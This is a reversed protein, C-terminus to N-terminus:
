KKRMQAETNKYILDLWVNSHLNINEQFIYYHYGCLEVSQKISKLEVNCHNVQVLIKVNAKTSWTINFFRKTVIMNVFITLQSFNGSTIKSVSNNTRKQQVTTWVYVSQLVFTYSLLFLITHTVAKEYRLQTWLDSMIQTLWIVDLFFGSKSKSPEEPKKCNGWYYIKYGVDNYCKEHCQNVVTVPKGEGNGM